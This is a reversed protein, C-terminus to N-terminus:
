VGLCHVTLTVAAAASAVWWKLDNSKSSGRSPVSTTQSTALSGGSTGSATSTVSFTVTSGDVILGSAGESITEGSITIALGGVSLTHGDVVAVGRQGSPEFATFVEGDPATWVAELEMTPTVKSFMITNTGTGAEVVLGNGGESLTEGDITVTPGGVSLTHGDVVAVGTEGAIESATLIDGNATNWIAELGTTRTIESLMITGTGTSDAVVLGDSGESFTEGDITAASEGASLTKGDVVAVGNEGPIGLITLVKGDPATIIAGIQDGGTMVPNPITQTRTADAVVLGNPGMNWTKGNVVAGPGGTSLTYGGVIVAGPLLPDKYVPQGSVFTFPSTRDDHDSEPGPSVYSPNTESQSGAQEHGGAGGQSSVPPDHNQIPNLPDLDQNSAGNAHGHGNESIGSLISSIGAGANPETSEPGSGVSTGSDHGGSIAQGPAGKDPQGLGPSGSDSGSISSGVLASVIAGGAENGPKRPDSGAASGSGGNQPANGKGPNLLSGLGALPDPLTPDSSGPDSSGPSPLGPGSSGPDASGPDVPGPNSSGSAPSGPDSSGSQGTGSDGGSSPSTPHPPSIHTSSVRPSSATPGPEPSVTATSMGTSVTTHPDIPAAPAEEGHLAYPPDWSGWGAVTCTSWESELALVGSPMALIPAWGDDYIVDCAQFWCQKSWLYAGLPVPANFNSWDVPATSQKNPGYLYSIQDSNVPVIKNSSFTEFPLLEIDIMTLEAFSFYATPSTLTHGDLIATVVGSASPMVVSRSASCIPIESVIRQGVDSVNGYPTPCVSDCLSGIM